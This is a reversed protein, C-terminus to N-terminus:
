LRKISPPSTAVEKNPNSTVSCQLKTLSLVKFDIVCSQRKIASEPTKPIM